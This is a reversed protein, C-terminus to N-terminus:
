GIHLFKILSQEVVNLLFQFQLYMLKNDQSEKLSHYAIRIPYNLRDTILYLDKRIRLNILINLKLIFRIKIEKSLKYCSKHKICINHYQHSDIEDFITTVQM